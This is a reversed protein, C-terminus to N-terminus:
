SNTTINKDFFSGDKTRVEAYFLCKCNKDNDEHEYEELKPNLKRENAWKGRVNLWTQTSITTSKNKTKKKKM